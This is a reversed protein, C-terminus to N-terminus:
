QAPPALRTSSTGPPRRVALLLPKNRRHTHLACTGAKEEVYTIGRLSLSDRYHGVLCGCDLSEMALLRMMSM